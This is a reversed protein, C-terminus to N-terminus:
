VVNVHHDEEHLRSQVRESQIKEMAEKVNGDNWYTRNVNLFLIAEFVLPALDERNDTLINKAISWLREIEAVSGLIFDCNMYKDNREMRKRKGLNIRQSMTLAGHHKIDQASGTTETAPSVLCKCASKEADTM